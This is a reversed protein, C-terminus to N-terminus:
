GRWVLVHMTMLTDHYPVIRTYSVVQAADPFSITGNCSPWDVQVMASTADGIVTDLGVGMSNQGDVSAIYWVKADDYLWSAYAVKGSSALAIPRYDAIPVDTSVPTEITPIHGSLVLTENGSLGLPSGEDDQVFLNTTDSSNVSVGLVSAGPDGVIIFTTGRRAATDLRIAADAAYAQPVAGSEIIIIDQQPFSESLTAYDALTINTLAHVRDSFGHTAGVMAITPLTRDGPTETINVADGVGCSGFVPAIATSDNLYVFIRDKVRLTTRLGDPTM